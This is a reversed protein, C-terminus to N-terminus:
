PTRRSVRQILNTLASAGAGAGDAMPDVVDIPAVDGSEEATAQAVGAPGGAGRDAVTAGDSPAEISEEPMDRDHGAM